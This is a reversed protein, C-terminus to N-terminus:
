DLLLKEFKSYDVNTYTEIRRVKIYAKFLISVIPNITKFLLYRALSVNKKAYKWFVKKLDNAYMLSSPKKKYIYHIIITDYEKTKIYNITNTNWCLQLNWKLMSVYKVKNQCLVNLIDQDSNLMNHQIDRACKFIDDITYTKRFEVLNFLLMGANFYLYDRSLNLNKCMKEWNDFSFDPAAALLNNELDCYYLDDISGDIIMDGDLYLIRDINEPVVFPIILRYYAVLKLDSLANYNIDKPFVDETVFIYHLSIDLSNCWESFENIENEDLDFNLYYVNIKCNEKRNNYALSTLMTKYWFLYGRDCAIGINMSDYIPRREKM